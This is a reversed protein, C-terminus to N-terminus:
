SSAAPQEYQSPYPDAQNFTVEVVGWVLSSRRRHTVLDLLRDLHDARGELGVAAVDHQAVDVLVVPTTVTVSIPAHTPHGADVWVSFAPISRIMRSRTSPTVSTILM